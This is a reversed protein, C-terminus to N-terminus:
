AVTAQIGPLVEGRTSTQRSLLPDELGQEQQQGGTAYLQQRLDKKREGSKSLARAIGVGAAAGFVTGWPGCFLISGVILGAGGGAAMRLRRRRRRRFKKAISDSQNDETPYPIGHYGAIPRPSITIATSTPVTYECAECIRTTIPNILTCHPCPWTQSDAHENPQTRSPTYPPEEEHSVNLTQDWPDSVAPSNENKHEVMTTQKEITIELAIVSHFNAAELNGEQRKQSHL